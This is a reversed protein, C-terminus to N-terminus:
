EHKNELIEIKKYLDKICEILIPVIKEYRVAKYNSIGEKIVEPIYEEIEQAIVGLEVKSLDVNPNISKANENWNFRVGKINKIIHHYDTIDTINTKLRKDSSSFFATIDGGAVIDDPCNLRMKAGNDDFFIQNAATECGEIGFYM